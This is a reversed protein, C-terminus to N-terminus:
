APLDLGALLRNWQGQNKLLLEIVERVAGKGGKATTVIHAVEQVEPAADAPCAALGVALLIPIDPLDDGIFCVQSAQLQLEELLSRFPGAKLKVGQIVPSIGLESARLDVVKASRGSLIAVQKGAKRWLAIAFGDRVHFNKTEVGLDNQIILGDTLVGDVDVLLLEIPGCRATLIAADQPLAARSPM